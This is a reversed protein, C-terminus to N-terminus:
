TAQRTGPATASTAALEFHRVGTRTIRMVARCAPDPCMVHDDHAMWDHPDRVRQKAPLLPLVAALAYISFTKGAPISLNEGSLEFYDGLHHNCVAELGEAVAVIEVRLDYLEFNRPNDSM